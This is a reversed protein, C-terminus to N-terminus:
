RQVSTGLSGNGTGPERNGTGPKLSMGFYLSFGSLLINLHKLKSFFFHMQRHAKSIYRQIKFHASPHM